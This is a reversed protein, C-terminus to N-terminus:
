EDSEEEDEEEEDDDDDDQLKFECWYKQCVSKKPERCLYKQILTVSNNRFKARVAIERKRESCLKCNLYKIFIICFSLVQNPRTLDQDDEEEDEEDEEGSSDEEADENVVAKKEVIGEDSVNLYVMAPYVHAM